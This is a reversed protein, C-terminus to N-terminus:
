LDDAFDQTLFGNCVLLDDWGDNNVDAFLSGWAWRGMTAGAEVSVDRFKGDGSNELLTNGRSLRQYVPKSGGAAHNRFREQFTIRNGASSFMNSM